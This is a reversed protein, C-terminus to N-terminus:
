GVMKRCGKARCPCADPQRCPVRRHMGQACAICMRTVAEEQKGVEAMAAVIGYLAEDPMPRGAWERELLRVIRHDELGRLQEVLLSAHEEQVPNTGGIRSM